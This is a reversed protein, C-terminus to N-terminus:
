AVDLDAAQGLDLELQAERRHEAGTPADRDLGLTEYRPEGRGETGVLGHEGHEPADTIGARLGRDDRVREAIAGVVAVVELTEDVV